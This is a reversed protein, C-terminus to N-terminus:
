FYIKVLETVLYKIKDILVFQTGILVISSAMDGKYEDIGYPIFGKAQLMDINFYKPFFSIIGPIAEIFKKAYFTVLILVLCQLLIWGFLTPLLINTTFPPFIKHILIGVILYVVSYLIGYQVSGALNIFRVKDLRFFDKMGSIFHTAPDISKEGPVYSM